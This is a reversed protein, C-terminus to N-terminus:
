DDNEMPPMDLIEEDDIIYGELVTVENYSAVPELATARRNHTGNLYHQLDAGSPVLYCHELVFSKSYTSRKQANCSYTTGKKPKRMAGFIIWESKIALIKKLSHSPFQILDGEKLSTKIAM